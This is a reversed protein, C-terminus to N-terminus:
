SSFKGYLTVTLISHLLGLTCLWTMRYSLSPKMWLSNSAGRGAWFHTVITIFLAVGMEQFGGGGWGFFHNRRSSVRIIM